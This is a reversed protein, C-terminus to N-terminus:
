ERRREHSPPPRPGPLISIFSASQRVDALVAHSLVLSGRESIHPPTAAPVYSPYGLLPRSPRLATYPAPFARCSEISQIGSKNALVAYPAASPSHIPILSCVERSIDFHRYLGRLFAGPPLWVHQKSVSVYRPRLHATPRVRRPLSSFVLHVERSVYVLRLLTSRPISSTLSTRAGWYGRQVGSLEGLRAAAATVAPPQTPRVTTATL